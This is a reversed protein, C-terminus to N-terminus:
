AIQLSDPGSTTLTGQFGVTFTAPGTVAVITPSANDVSWTDLSM